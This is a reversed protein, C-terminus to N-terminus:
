VPSLLVWCCTASAALIGHVVGDTAIATLSDASTWVLDQVSPREPTFAWNLELTGGNGVLITDEVIDIAGSLTKM